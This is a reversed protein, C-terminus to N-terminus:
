RRTQRRLPRGAPNDVQLRTHVMAEHPVRRAYGDAAPAETSRLMGHYGTSGWAGHAMPVRAAGAVGLGFAGQDCRLLSM